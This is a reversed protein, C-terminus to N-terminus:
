LEPRTLDQYALRCYYIITNSIYESITWLIYWFTSLTFYTVSSTGFYTIDFNILNSILLSVQLMFIIRNKYICKERLNLIRKGYKEEKELLENLTLEHEDEVSQIDNNYRVEMQIFDNIKEESYKTYTSVHISMDKIQKKVKKFISERNGLNFVGGYIKDLNFNLDDFDIKSLFDKATLYDEDEMKKKQECLALEKGINVLENHTNMKQEEYNNKTIKECSMKIIKNFKYVALRNVNNRKM